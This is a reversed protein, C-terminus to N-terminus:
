GKARAAFREVAAAVAPDAFRESQHKAELFLQERLSITQGSDILARTAVVAAPAAALRRATAMAQERLEADDIARWIWGWAAAQEAPVRESLAAAALARARGGLRGLVWTAGLDPVGGLAGVQPLLFYASKAALVVDCLMALGVAGGACPGNVAAVTPVQAEHIALALPTMTATLHHEVEVPLDGSAAFDHLDAGASFARGSGTVVIADVEPRRGADQVAGTIRAMLDWSLANLKAPRDLTLVAVRDEVDIRLM